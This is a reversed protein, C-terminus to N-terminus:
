PMKCHNILEIREKELRKKLTILRLIYAGLLGFIVLYGAIFYALNTM